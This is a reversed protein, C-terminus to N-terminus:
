NEVLWLTFRLLAVYGMRQYVPRGLDSAILAAPLEPRVLTPLWTVAEGIRRGRVTPLCSIIEVGNVRGGHHALATGVPEGDLHALWLTVDDVDLIPPSFLSGGPGAPYAAVLTAEFTALQEVTRVPILELGAPEPVDAGGAARVMFPPHGVLVAGADRLDPTPFPAALVYPGLGTCATRTRELVGTWGDHDLPRRVIGMNAFPFSARHHAIAVDGDEVVTAGVARGVVTFYHVASDVYDRLVTDGPPTSAQWGDELTVDGGESV